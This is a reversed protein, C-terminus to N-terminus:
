PVRRRLWAGVKRKPFYESLPVDLSESAPARPLGHYALILSTGFDPSRGLRAEIEVKSEVLIGATTLKWRPAVLDQRLRRSPPLALDEGLVPDLAERLKWWLWTRVNRLRYLGSRDTRYQKFADKAANSVNVAVVRRRMGPFGKLIDTASAGWGIVDLFVAAKQSKGALYTMVIDAAAPGDPVTHGPRVLQKGFWSGYRPTLVLNDRGGYVLDVGVATLPTSPQPRDRWREMALDVWSAPIVKWVDGRRSLSFDGKLLQSRLPEPLSQLVQKYGTRMLFINDELTAPIFTRSTPTIRDGKYTFPESSEVERDQDDLMAFWRLEGPEAPNSHQKDVWPAWRDIVWLGEDDAPPNGTVVVRVRQDVTVTRTWAILFLYVALMFEPVEDFAKLDHPRGRYKVKDKEHQVAGFELTRGGPVNRWFHDNSNYRAGTGVLVERSREVIERLQPYERRFIISKAHATLALGLLLDTKGGGARGGFFIEFAPNRYADVQPGLQPEWMQSTAREARRIRDVLVAPSPPTVGRKRLVAQVTALQRLLHTQGGVGETM